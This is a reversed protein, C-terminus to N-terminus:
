KNGPSQTEESNMEVNLAIQLRASRFRLDRIRHIQKIAATLGHSPRDRYGYRRLFGLFRLIGLPQRSPTVLPALMQKKVYLHRVSPTSAENNEDTKLLQMEVVEQLQQGQWM